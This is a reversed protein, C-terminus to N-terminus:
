RYNVGRPGVVYINMFYTASTGSFYFGIQITRGNFKASWVPAGQLPGTGLLIRSVVFGPTLSSLTFTDTGKLASVSGADKGIRVVGLTPYSYYLWRPFDLGPSEYKCAILPSNGSSCPDDLSVQPNASDMWQEEGRMAYFKHGTFTEYFKSEAKTLKLQVTDRDLEGTIDAPVRAVIKTDSWSDIILNIKGHAFGGTATLFMSGQADGFNCGEFVYPNYDPDPTFIIGTTRVSDITLILPRPYYHTCALADNVPAMSAAANLNTNNTETNNTGSPGPSKNASVNGAAGALHNASPTANRRLDAAQKQRSLIALTAADVGKAGLSSNKQELTRVFQVGRLLDAVNAGAGSSKDTILTNSARQAPTVGSTPETAAGPSSSGKGSQRPVIGRSVATPQAPDPSAAKMGSVMARLPVTIVWNGQPGPGTLNMIASKQGAIQTGQSKVAFVVDVQMQVNPAMNWQYPGNQGEQYHIRSRVGSAAAPQPQAPLNKSGGQLPGMERFEAVRFPGAPLNLTINGASNTLLTFTRTASAGDAVFGFDLQDPSHQPTNMLATSSGPLGAPQAAPASVGPGPAPRDGRKQPGQGLAVVATLILGFIAARQITRNTM